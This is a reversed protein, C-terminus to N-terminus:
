KTSTRTRLTHAGSARAIFCVHFAQRIALTHFLFTFIVLKETQHTNLECMKVTLSPRNIALAYIVVHDVIM